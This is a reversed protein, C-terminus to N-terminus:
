TPYRIETINCTATFHEAEVQARARRAIDIRAKYIAEQRKKRALFSAKAEELTPSAWQKKANNLVFRKIIGFGCHLWVGKKTHKLVPYAYVEVTLTPGGVPEGFEDVPSAYLKDEMRYWYEM